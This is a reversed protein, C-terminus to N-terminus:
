KTWWAPQGKFVNRGGTPKFHFEFGQQQLKRLKPEIEKGGLVWLNGGQERKDVYQNLGEAILLRIVLSSDEDPPELVSRASVSVSSTGFGVASSSKPAGDHLRSKKSNHQKSSWKENHFDNCTMRALLRAVQGGVIRITPLVECNCSSGGSLSHSNPAPLGFWAISDDVIVVQTYASWEETFGQWNRPLDLSYRAKCAVRVGRGIASSLAKRVRGAYTANLDSDTIALAVSRECGDVDRIFKDVANGVNLYFSLAIGHPFKQLMPMLTGNSLSCVLGHTECYELLHLFANDRGRAATHWCQGNAIVILKGRARTVAVNVLRYVSNNKNSSTLRTLYDFPFSEVCDFIIVDRESGQFQHVTNCSIKSVLQENEAMIQLIRRVLKVQARYPSIIGVSISDDSRVADIALGVSIVASVLNFRSGGGPEKCAPCFVGALDVLTVASGPFPRTAVVPSRQKWVDKYDTLLGSYVLENPLAAIDPHMRRQENLMVLWPHAYASHVATEEGDDTIGLFSFLDRSLVADPEADETQVIPALQRFDGVCILRKKAYSAAAIVQSVYAMSVEDFMVVDFTLDDFLANAYLRSVTTAVIRARAVCGDEETRLHQRIKAIAEQLDHLKHADHKKASKIKRAQRNLNRMQQELEPHKKLVYNYSVVRKDELLQKDRVDGYRLVKGDELYEDMDAALMHREVQAAVGDVSVNSHSVALVKMGRKAFEIAIRAMTYTKGTGPPGWIVTIRNKLAATIAAEQGRPVEKIDTKTAYRRGGILELALQNQPGISELREDLEKLLRWLDSTVKASPVKAGLDIEVSLDLTLDECAIVTGPVKEDAGDVWVSVSAGVPINADNPNEFTYVYSGIATSVREGNIVIHRNSSSKKAAQIEQALATRQNDIVQQWSSDCTGIAM